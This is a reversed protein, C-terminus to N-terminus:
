DSWRLLRGALLASLLTWGLLVLIDVVPFSGEVLASRMGDGLAASPLWAVFSAWPEPYRAASFLVGGVAALLVWLLNALALVGEARLTGGILAALSAFALAGAVTVVVAGPLGAPDPRWGLLAAVAGLVTLQVALVAFVSLAKALLLGERGLPTTGVMRLVGWRREFGLLIAQGTFATSIVALALVGATALDIREGTGLSPSETVALGVLAMLPLVVSVLLQEGHSLLGRAEFGAHALVRRLAPAPGSHGGTVRVGEPSAASDSM